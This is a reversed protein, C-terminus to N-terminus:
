EDTVLVDPISIGSRRSSRGEIRESSLSAARSENRSEVVGWAASRYGAGFWVGAAASTALLGMCAFLLSRRSCRFM